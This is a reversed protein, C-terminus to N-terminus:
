CFPESLSDVNSHTTSANLQFYNYYLCAWHLVVFCLCKVRINKTTKLHDYSNMYIGCADSAYDNEFVGAILHFWINYFVKISITNLM